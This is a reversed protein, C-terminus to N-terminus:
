RTAAKKEYPGLAAAAAKAFSLDVIQDVSVSGDIQKTEKFFEWTRNLSELNLGGDPAFYHSTVGRFVAPDKIHSYETLIAIIEDSNPGTLHGKQLADNYYRAARILARMFKKAADPKEKIFKEGYFTVATQYDPYFEDVGLFRVATGAKVIATVTPEVTLSADIAGNQFAALHQPFGLYVREIDNPALGGKRLAEDVLFAESNGVASIAVKLGKFDKLSKVRGSDILDKRVMLAQFGHDKANRAKDAVIKMGIGRKVANFLGASTAGSAVDLEGTGLPAIAKAASDFRIFNVTIGEDKFFGKKDAVFFPADSSSGIVGVTLEQASAEGPSWASWLALAAVIWAAGSRDFPLM